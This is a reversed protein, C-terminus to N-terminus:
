EALIREAVALQTQHLAEAKDKNLNLTSVRRVCFVTDEPLGKFGAKLALPLDKLKVGYAESENAPIVGKEAYKGKADYASLPLFGGAKAVREFLAPSLLCIVKEGALIEQDFIELNDHSAQAYYAQNSPDQELIEDATRITYNGLGFTLAGDENIDKLYPSLSAQMDQKEIASFVYEGGYLLYGDEGKNSNACQVLCVLLVILGFVGLITQWKYHYWFNELKTRLRGKVLTVERGAQKEERREENKEEQSM